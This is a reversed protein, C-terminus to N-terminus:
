EGEPKEGPEEAPPAEGEPAEGEAAEEGEEPEVQVKVVHISVVPQDHEPGQALEPIEVGDPLPIDSLHLMEDLGLNAIDLELYEPLDKPLCSVEVETMLHSVTGGGQKVGVAIDDNVLHLPVSMRIKETAIVRQLDLHLVQRKAPHVQVDKLIAPQQKDGVQVTLVSSFFAEQEMKHLLEDANFALARPPKGGGYIIAPVKGQRRLRRSAGKGANERFEAVLEFGKSM